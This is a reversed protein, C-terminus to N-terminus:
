DAALFAAREEATYPTDKRDQSLGVVSDSMLLLVLTLHIVRLLLM